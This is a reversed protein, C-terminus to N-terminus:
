TPAWRTAPPARPTPPSAALSQIQAPALGSPLSFGWLGSGLTTTSGIVLRLRVAVTKGDGARQYAGDLSGNGITPNTTAGTWTIAYSTWSAYLAVFRNYVETTWFAPNIFQGATVNVPAAM